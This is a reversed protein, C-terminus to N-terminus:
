ISLSLCRCQSYEPFEALQYTAIAQQVATLVQGKEDMGAFWVFVQRFQEFRKNAAELKRTDLYKWVGFLFAIPGGLLTLSTLYEM